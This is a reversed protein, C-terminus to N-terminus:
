RYIRHYVRGRKKAGVPVLFLLALFFWFTAIMWNQLQIVQFLSVGLFLCFILFNITIQM